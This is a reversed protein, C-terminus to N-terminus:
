RIVGLTPSHRIDDVCNDTTGSIVTAFCHLQTAGNPMASSEYPTWSICSVTLRGTDQHRRHPSPRIKALAAEKIAMHAHLYAQTTEISEHGLWLAIVTCDVGAELLMM